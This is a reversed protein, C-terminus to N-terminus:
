LSALQQPKLRAKILTTIFKDFTTRLTIRDPDKKLEKLKKLRSRRYDNVTKSKQDYSHHLPIKWHSEYLYSFAKFM